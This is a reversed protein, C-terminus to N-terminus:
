TISGGFSLISLSIQLYLRNMGQVVPVPCRHDLKRFPTYRVGLGHCMQTLIFRCSVFYSALDVKKRLM